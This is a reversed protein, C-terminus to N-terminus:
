SLRWTMWLAGTVGLLAAGFLALTATPHEVPLLFATLEAVRTARAVEVTGLPLRTSGVRLTALWSGEQEPVWAVVEHFTQAGGLELQPWHRVTQPGVQLSVNATLGLTGLNRVELELAEPTFTTLAATKLEAVLKAPRALEHSWLQQDRDFHVLYRGPPLDALPLELDGQAATAPLELVFHLAQSSARVASITAGPLELTDGSFAAFWPELAEPDRPPAARETRELFTRWAGARTPIPPEALSPEFSSKKIRAYDPGSYILYDDIRYLAEQTKGGRAHTTGPPLTERWWADFYADGDLNAVRLLQDGGLNWVGGEAHQLHVRGDVPSLYLQPTRQYVTSYEGRLGEALRGPGLHRATIDPVTFSIPAQRRLGEAWFSAPYNDEVTYDYIGESGSQGQTAEVFTVVKWPKQAVWSPLEAYPVARVRSDGVTILRTMPHNGLVTLSYRWLTPDQATWSMRMATRQVGAIPPGFDSSRPWIDSRVVLNAYRGAEPDFRYFAFPAEFSTLPPLSYSNLQYNGAIHFGAWFQRLQQSSLEFVLPRHPGWHFITPTVSLYPWDPILPLALEYPVRPDARLTATFRPYGLHINPDNVLRGSEWLPEGPASARVRGQWEQLYTETAVFRRTILNFTPKGLVLWPGRVPQVTLAPATGAPLVYGALNSPDVSVGFRARGSLPIVTAQVTQAPPVRPQFDVILDTGDDRFSFLYADSTTNGWRWWSYTRPDPPVTSRGRAVVTVRYRVGDQAGQWSSSVSNQAHAPAVFLAGFLVLFLATFLLMWRRLLPNTM